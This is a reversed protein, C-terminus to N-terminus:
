VDDSEFHQEFFNSNSNRLISKIDAFSVPQINNTSRHQDIMESLIKETISQPSIFRTLHAHLSLKRFVEKVFENLQNVTSFNLSQALKEAPWKKSVQLNFSLVAPIFYGCALGHPVSFHATLPYSASHCLSTKTISICYGSGNAAELLKLEHQDDPFQLFNLVNVIGRQAYDFIEPRYNKNWLSDFCQALADLACYLRQEPSQTKLFGPDLIAIKPFMLKSEVSTKLKKEKDWLTAYPTLESGSGATTPMAYVPLSNQATGVFERLHEIQTIKVKSTKQTLISLLKAVDLVSGGGVALVSQFIQSQSQELINLLDELSPLNPVVLFSTHSKNILAQRIIKYQEREMFGCSTVCLVDTESIFDGIKRMLGEGAVSRTPHSPYVFEIM